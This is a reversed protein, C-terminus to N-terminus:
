NTKKTCFVGDEIRNKDNVRRRQKWTTWSRSLLLMHAAMNSGFGESGLPTEGRCRAALFPCMSTIRHPFGGGERSLLTIVIGKKREVHSRFQCFDANRRQLNSMWAPISMLLCDSDPVARCWAARQPFVSTTRRSSSTLRSGAQMHRRLAVTTPADSGWRLLM